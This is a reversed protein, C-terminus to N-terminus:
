NFFIGTKVLKQRLIDDKTRHALNQWNPVEGSLYFPLGCISFNPDDDALMVTVETDPSFERIRLAASIGTDSGGIIYSRPCLLM